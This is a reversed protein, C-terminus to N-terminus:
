PPFNWICLKLTKLQSNGTMATCIATVQQPTPLANRLTVEELQTLAPALVQPHVLGVDWVELERLGPHRFVAQLLLESVAGEKVEMRRAAQLRRCDMVKHVYSNAKDAKNRWNKLRICVWAWLAPAEGVERWWRCVLV